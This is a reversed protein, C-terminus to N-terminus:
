NIKLYNESKIFGFEGEFYCREWIDTKGWYTILSGKKLIKKVPSVSSAFERMYTKDNMVMGFNLYNPFNIFAILFLLYLNFSILHFAKIKIQQRKKHILIAAVYIAFLILIIMLYPFVKFYSWYLQNSWNIQYGILQHNNGIEEMRKAISHKAEKAQLSALYYLEKIWDNKVKSIYALKLKINESEKPNNSLLPQYIKEAELLHNSNFLSDALALQNRDIQSNAQQLTGLSFFIFFIIKNLHSAQM